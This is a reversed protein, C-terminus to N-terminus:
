HKSYKELKKMVAPDVGLRYCQLRGVLYMQKCYSKWCKIILKRM